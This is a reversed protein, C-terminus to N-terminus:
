MQNLQKKKAHKFIICMLIFAPIVCIYNLINIIWIWAIDTGMENYFNSNEVCNNKITPLIKYLIRGTDILSVGMVIPVAILMMYGGVQIYWSMLYNLTFKKPQFKNDKCAPISLVILGGAFFLISASTIISACTSFATGYDNVYFGDRDPKNFINICVDKPCINDLVTCDGPKSSYKRYIKNNKKLALIGMIQFFWYLALFVGIIVCAIIYGHKKNNDKQSEIANETRQDPDETPVSM